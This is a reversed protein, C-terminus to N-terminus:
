RKLNVLEELMTDSVTIIRSNAQYGRQTVIMDSFETALNVNSMELKGSEVTGAGESGGQKVKIIGSAGTEAFATNGVQDLGEPNDVVGVEVRGIAKLQSNYNVSIIGSSEINFSSLDSYRLEDVKLGAEDAAKVLRNLYEDVNAMTPPTGLGPRATVAPTTATGAVAARDTVNWDLKPEIALAATVEAQTGANQQRIREICDVIEAYDAYSTLEIPAADAAMGPLKVKIPNSASITLMNGSLDCGVRQFTFGEPPKVAPFVTGDAQTRDAAIVLVRAKEEAFSLEGNQDIDADMYGDNNEDAWMADMFDASPDEYREPEAAVATDGTGSAAVAPKYM